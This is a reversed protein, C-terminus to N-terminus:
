IHLKKRYNTGFKIHSDSYLFFYNFMEDFNQLFFYSNEQKNVCLVLKILLDNVNM